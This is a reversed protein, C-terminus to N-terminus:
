RIRVLGEQAVTAILRGDETYFRGRCLTRGGGAWSSRQDYLLWEDIRVPEHFWITHDLSTVFLGPQGFSIGHLQLASGLLFLDSIYTLAGAHSAQTDDPLSSSARLWTRRPGDVVDGPRPPRAPFRPEFPFNSSMWELWGRTREDADTMVDEVTASSEPPNLRLNSLQHDIAGEEPRQFSAIGVFIEGDGQVSRIRRTTFSGGDRTRGIHHEVPQDPDGGLVFYGHFSHVPRDIPVTQQAATLAQSAVEGGFMRQTFSPTRAWSHYVDPSQEEVTLIEALHAPHDPKDPRDPQQLSM